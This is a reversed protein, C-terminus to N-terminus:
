GASQFRITYEFVMDQGTEGCEPDYMNVQTEFENRMYAYYTKGEITMEARQFEGTVDIGLVDMVEVDKMEEPTAFLFAEACMDRYREFEADEMNNLGPVANPSLTFRIVYEGGSECEHPVGATFLEPTLDEATPYESLPATAVYATGSVPPVDPEGGGGGAWEGCAGGVCMGSVTIYSLNDYGGWDYYRPVNGSWDLLVGDEYAQRMTDTYTPM